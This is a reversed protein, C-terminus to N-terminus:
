RRTSAFYMGGLFTPTKKIQTKRVGIQFLEAVGEISFIQISPKIAVYVGLGSACNSTYQLKDGEGSAFSALIAVGDQQQNYSM